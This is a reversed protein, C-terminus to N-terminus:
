PRYQFAGCDLAGNGSPRPRHDKDTAPYTPEGNACQRAPHSASLHYDDDAFGQANTTTHNRSVYDTPGDVYNGSPSVLLNGYIEFTKDTPPWGIDVAPADHQMVVTNFRVIFRAVTNATSDFGIGIADGIFVNNEILLTRNGTAAHDSWFGNARNQSGWVKNGRIVGSARVSIGLGCRSEYITNNEILYDNNQLYIAHIHLPWCTPDLGTHHITNNIIRMGTHDDSGGLQDNRGAWIAHGGLNYMENGEISVDRTSNGAEQAFGIAGRSNKFVSNKIYVNRVNGMYVGAGTHIDGGDFTCNIILTNDHEPGFLRLLDTFTMGDHIHDWQGPPYSGDDAAAPAWHLGAVATDREEFYEVVVRHVGAALAHDVHNTTAAQVYWRDVIPVGDVFVRMGDDSTSAFRYTDDTAFVFDGEWHARFSDTPVDPGPSGKGWDFAIAADVRALAPHDAAAAFYAAHFAGHPVSPGDSPTYTAYITYESSAPTGDGFVMSPGDAFTDGGWRLSGVGDKRYGVAIGNATGEHIGIWYTGPDLPLPTAFPLVRWVAPSDAAVEIATTLSLLAGPEGAADAYIVGKVAQAGSGPAGGLYARLTSIDGAQTLTARQVFKTNAVFPFAIDGITTTGFSKAEDVGGPNNSCACLLLSGLVLRRM